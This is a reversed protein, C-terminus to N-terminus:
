CGMSVEAGVEQTEMDNALISSATKNELHNRLTPHTSVYTHVLELNVCYAAHVWWHSM